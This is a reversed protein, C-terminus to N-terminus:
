LLRKFKLCFFSLLDFICPSMQTMPNLMSLEALDIWSLGITHLYQISKTQFALKHCGTFPATSVAGSVLVDHILFVMLFSVGYFVEALLDVGSFELEWLGLYRFVLWFPMEMFAAVLFTTLGFTTLTRITISPSMLTTLSTPSTWGTIM